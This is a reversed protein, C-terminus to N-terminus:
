QLLQIIFCCSVGSPLNLYFIPPLPLPLHWMSILINHLLWWPTHKNSLNCQCCQTQIKQVRTILTTSNINAWWEAKGQQFPSISPTASLAGVQKVSFTFEPNCYGDWHGSLRIQGTNYALPPGFCFDQPSYFKFKATFFSPVAQRASMRHNCSLGMNPLLFLSIELHQPFTSKTAYACRWCQNLSILRM